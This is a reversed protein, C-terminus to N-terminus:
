HIDYNREYLWHEDKTKVVWELKGNEDKSYYQLRKLQGLKRNPDFIIQSNAFTDGM